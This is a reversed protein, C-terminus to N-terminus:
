SCVPTALASEQVLDLFGESIRCVPVIVPGESPGGPATALSNELRPRLWSGRRGETPPAKLEPM